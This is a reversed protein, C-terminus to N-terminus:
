RAEEYMYTSADFAARTMYGSPVSVAAGVYGDAGAIGSGVYLAGSKLVGGVAAADEKRAQWFTLRQRKAAALIAAEKEKAAVMVSAAAETAAAEIQEQLTAPETAWVPGCVGFAVVVLLLYKLINMIIEKGRIDPNPTSATELMFRQLSRSPSISCRYMGGNSVM